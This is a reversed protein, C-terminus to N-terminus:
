HCDLPHWGPTRAASPPRLPLVTAATVPLAARPAPVPQWIHGDLTLIELQGQFSGSARNIDLAQPGFREVIKRDQVAHVLRHLKKEVPVIRRHAERRWWKLTSDWDAHPSLSVPCTMIQIVHHLDMDDLCARREKYIARRETVTRNAHEIEVEIRLRSRAINWHQQKIGRTFGKRVYAGEKVTLIRVTHAEFEMGCRELQAVRSEHQRNQPPLKLPFPSASGLAVTQLIAQM